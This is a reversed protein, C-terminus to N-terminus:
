VQFGNHRALAENRAPFHPLRIRLSRLSEAKELVDDCTMDLHRAITMISGLSLWAVVFTLDPDPSELM